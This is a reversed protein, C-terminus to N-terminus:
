VIWMLLRPDMTFDYDPFICIKIIISTKVFNIKIYATSLVLNRNVIFKKFSITLFKPAGPRITLSQSLDNM